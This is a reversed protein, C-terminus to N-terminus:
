FQRASKHLRENYTVSLAFLALPFFRSFFLFASQIQITQTLTMWVCACVGFPDYGYSSTLLYLLPRQCNYRSIRLVCDRETQMNKSSRSCATFENKERWNFRDHKKRSFINSAVRANRVCSAWALFVFFKIVKASQHPRASNKREWNIIANSIDRSLNFHM